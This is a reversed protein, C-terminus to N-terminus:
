GRRKGGEQQEASNNHRGCEAPRGVRENTGLFLFMRVVRHWIVTVSLPGTQKRLGLSVRILVHSAPNQKALHYFSNTM